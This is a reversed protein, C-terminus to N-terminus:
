VRKRKSKKRVLFFFFNYFFFFLSYLFIIKLFFFFIIKVFQFTKSSLKNKLKEKINPNEALTIIENFINESKQFKKLKSYILYKLCLIKLFIKLDDCKALFVEYLKFCKEIAIKAKYYMKLNIYNEALRLYILPYPAETNEALEFYILSKQFFKEKFFFEGMKFYELSDEYEPKYISALDFESNM